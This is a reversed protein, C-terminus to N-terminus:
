YMHMYQLHRNRLSGEDQPKIRSATKPLFNKRMRHVQSLLQKRKIDFPNRVLSFRAVYLCVFFHSWSYGFVMKCCM